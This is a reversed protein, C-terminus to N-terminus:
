KEVGKYIFVGLKSVLYLLFILFLTRSIVVGDVSLEYGKPILLKENFFIFISFVIPVIYGIIALAFASEKRM